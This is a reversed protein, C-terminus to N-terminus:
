PSAHFSVDTLAGLVCSFANFFDSSPESPFPNRGERVEDLTRRLRAWRLFPQVRDLSLDHRLM